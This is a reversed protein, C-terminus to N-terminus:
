IGSRRAIERDANAQHRRAQAEKLATRMRKPRPTIPVTVERIPLRDDTVYWNIQSFSDWTGQRCADPPPVDFDIVGGAEEIM